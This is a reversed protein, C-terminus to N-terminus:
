EDFAIWEDGVKQEVWGFNSHDHMLDHNHLYLTYDAVADMRSKAADYSGCVASEFHSDDSEFCPHFCFRFQNM